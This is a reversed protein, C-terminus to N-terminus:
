RRSLEYGIALAATFALYGSLTTAILTWIQGYGAALKLVVAFGLLWAAVAAAVVAVRVGMKPQPQARWFLWVLFLHPPVLMLQSAYAAM